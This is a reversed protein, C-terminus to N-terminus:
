KFEWVDDTKPRLMARWRGPFDRDTKYSRAIAGACMDALQVLRDSQSNSFRVDKLAGPELRKRLYTKLERKFTRDGSGDIIVTAGRLLGGDFSLMSRVFFSYFAEKDSRLHPSYILAKKVVIARVRFACKEIGKFFADRVEHRSKNFRFEDSIRLRAAVSEIATQTATAAESNEFAVMAAVFVETSGRALKFGPDGSEDIFVFM